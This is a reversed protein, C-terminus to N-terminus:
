VTVYQTGRWLLNGKDLHVALWSEFEYGICKFAAVSDMCWLMVPLITVIILAIFQYLCM